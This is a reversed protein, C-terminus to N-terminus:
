HQLHRGLSDDVSRHLVLAPLRQLPHFYPRLRPPYDVSRFGQLRRPLPRRVVLSLKANRLQLRSRIVHLKQRFRAAPCPNVALNRLLSPIFLSRRWLKIRSHRIHSRRRCHPDLTSRLHLNRLRQLPLSQKLNGTRHSSSVEVSSKLHHQHLRRAFRQLSVYVCVRFAAFKLNLSHRFSLVLQHRRCRIRTPHTGFATTRRQRRHYRDLQVSVNVSQHQHESAARTHIHVDLILNRPFPLLNMLHLQRHRGFSKQLRRLPQNHRRRVPRHSPGRSELSERRSSILHLRPRRIHGLSVHCRQM